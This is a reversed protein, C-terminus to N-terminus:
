DRTVAKLGTMVARPSAYPEQREVDWYRLDGLPIEVGTAACIVYAGPRLVRFDGDRYQVQAENLASPRKEYRNM